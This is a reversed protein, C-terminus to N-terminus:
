AWRYAHMRVCVCLPRARHMCCARDPVGHCIHMHVMYHAHLTCISWPTHLCMFLHPGEHLATSAFSILLMAHM